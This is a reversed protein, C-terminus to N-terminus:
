FHAIAHSEPAYCPLQVLPELINSAVVCHPSRCLIVVLLQTIRSLTFSSGESKLYLLGCDFRLLPSTVRLRGSYSNCENVLRNEREGKGVTVAHVQPHFLGTGSAFQLQPAGLQDSLTQHTCLALAIGHGLVVAAASVADLAGPSGQTAM